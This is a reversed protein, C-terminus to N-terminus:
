ARDVLPSVPTAQDREFVVPRYARAAMTAIARLHTHKHGALCCPPDLYAFVVRSEVTVEDVPIVVWPCQRVRGLIPLM